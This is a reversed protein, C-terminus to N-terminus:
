ARDAAQGLWYFWISPSVLYSVVPFGFTAFACWWSPFPLGEEQTKRNGVRASRSGSRPFIPNVGPVGIKKVRDAFVQGCFSFPRCCPEIVRTHDPRVAPCHRSQELKDRAM